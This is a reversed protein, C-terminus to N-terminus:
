KKIELILKVPLVESRRASTFGQIPIAPCLVIGKIEIRDPFVWIDAQFRDLIARKAKTIDGVTLKGGPKGISPLADMVVFTRDVKGAKIRELESGYLKLTERVNELEDIQGPHIQAKINSLREREVELSVRMKSARTDGIAGKVWGQALKALQKDIDDLQAQIPQVTRALANRRTQLIRISDGIAKELGEPKSLTDMVAKFAADELWVARLIPLRCKHSYDPEHRRMRGRCSYVRYTGGRPDYDCRLVLGCLGCHMIGQLLWPSDRRRHIRTNDRCRKQALEWLKPEIIVPMKVGSPHEGKYGPHKLIINISSEQWMNGKRTRIGESNLLRAIQVLGLHDFVYLDYIRRVIIAEDERIELFKTEPVFRYGYKTKGSAWQGKSWRAYRGSKTREIIIEREWEAVVGLIQFIMRGFPTSTDINETISILPVKMDRLKGEIELLLRLNRALRDLKWLLVRDGPQVDQLLRRLDPRDGNTGTHGADCYDIANPAVVALKALQWDLSTGEKHQEETSVRRYQRDV